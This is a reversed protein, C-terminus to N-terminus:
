VDAASSRLSSGRAREGKEGSNERKGQYISASILTLTRTHTHAHASHDSVGAGRKVEQRRQKKVLSM